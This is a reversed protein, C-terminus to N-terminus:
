KRKMKELFPFNQSQRCPAILPLRTPVAPVAAWGGGPGQDLHLGQSPTPKM